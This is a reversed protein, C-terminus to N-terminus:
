EGGLRIPSEVKTGQDGRLVDKGNLHPWWNGKVVRTGEANILVYETPHAFRADPMLDVWILTTPGTLDIRDGRAGDKLVDKGSLTEPYVHVVAERPTKAVAEDEGAEAESYARQQGALAACFAVVCVWALRRTSRKFHFATM